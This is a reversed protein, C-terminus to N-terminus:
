DFVVQDAALKVHFPGETSVYEAGWDVICVIRNKKSTNVVAFGRATITSNPITVSDWTLCGATRDVWARCNKLPMGGKRYGKGQVEGEPTYYLTDEDLNAQSTYLVVKYKDACTHVGALLDAKTQPPICTKLGM